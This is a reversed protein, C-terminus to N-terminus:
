ESGKGDNAGEGADTRAEAIKGGGPPRGRKVKPTVGLLESLETDIADRQAILTKVRTIRDDLM